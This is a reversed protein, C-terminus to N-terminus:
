RTKPDGTPGCNGGVAKSARLYYRPGVLGRKNGDLGEDGPKGISRAADARSRGYGMKVLLRSSSESLFPPYRQPRSVAGDIALGGTLCLM